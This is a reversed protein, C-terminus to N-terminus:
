GPCAAPASKDIRLQAFANANYFAKPYHACYINKVILPVSNAQYAFNKRHVKHFHRLPPPCTTYAWQFSMM